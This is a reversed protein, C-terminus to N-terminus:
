SVLTTLCVEDGPCDFQRMCSASVVTGPPKHSQCGVKASELAVVLREVNEVECPLQRRAFARLQRREGACNGNVTIALIVVNGHLEFSVESVSHHVELEPSGAQTEVGLEIGHSLGVHM